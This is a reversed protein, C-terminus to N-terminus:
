VHPSLNASATASVHWRLSQRRYQKLVGRVSASLRLSASTQYWGDSLEGQQKKKEKKVRKIESKRERIKRWLQLYEGEGDGWNGM